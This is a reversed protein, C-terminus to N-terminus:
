VGIGGDITIEQGILYDPADDAIYAILGAVETPKGMRKLPSNSLRLQFYKENLDKTMDTEILGPSICNIRIGLRGMEKHVSKSFAVIAAKSAAYSSQGPNGRQGSLSTVNIISGGKQRIMLPLVARTTNVVCAINTNLTFWWDDDSTMVFPKSQGLVGANNILINIVGEEAKITKILAKVAATDTMDCQYATPAPLGLSEVAEIVEQAADVASRYTFLVRHGRQAMTIVTQRGIGRTGGSVLVVKPNNM